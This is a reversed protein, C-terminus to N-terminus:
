HTKVLSSSHKNTKNKLGRFSLSTHAIQQVIRSDSDFRWDFVCEQGSDASNAVSTLNLYMRVKNEYGVSM